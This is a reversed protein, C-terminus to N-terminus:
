ELFLFMREEMKKLNSQLFSIDKRGVGFSFWVINIIESTGNSKRLM